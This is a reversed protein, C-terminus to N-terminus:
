GQGSLVERQSIPRATSSTILATREASVLTGTRKIILLIRRPELTLTALTATEPGISGYRRDPILMWRLCRKTTPRRQMETVTVRASSCRETSRIWQQQRGSPGAAETSEVWQGAM